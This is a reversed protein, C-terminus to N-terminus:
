DSELEIRVAANWTFGGGAGADGPEPSEADARGFVGRAAAVFGGDRSGWSMDRLFRRERWKIWVIAASALSEFM